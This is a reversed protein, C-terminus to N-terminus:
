YIIFLCIVKKTKAFSNDLNKQKPIDDQTYNWPNSINALKTDDIPRSKTNSRVGSSRTKRSHQNYKSSRSHPQNINNKSKVLRVKNGQYRLEPIKSSKNYNTRASSNDSISPKVDSRNNTNSENLEKNRQSRSINRIIKLDGANNYPLFNGNYGRSKVNQLIPNKNDKGKSIGLAQMQDELVGALNRSVKFNSLSTHVMPHASSRDGRVSSKKIMFKAGKHNKSSYSQFMAPQKAVVHSRGRNSASYDDNESSIVSRTDETYKLNVENNIQDTRKIKKSFKKNYFLEKWIVDQASTNQANEQTLTSSLNLNEYKDYMVSKHHAYYGSISLSNNVYNQSIDHNDTQDFSKTNRADYKEYNARDLLNTADNPSHQNLYSGTISVNPDNDRRTKRVSVPDKLNHLYNSEIRGRNNGNKIATENHKTEIKLKPLNDKEPNEVESKKSMSLANAEQRSKRVKTLSDLVSTEYELKRQASQDINSKEYECQLKGEKKLRRHYLYYTTTVHNHKNADLCKQIYEAEFGFQKMM